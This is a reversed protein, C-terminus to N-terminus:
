IYSLHDSDCVGYPWCFAVICKIFTYMVVDIAEEKCKEDNKYWLENSRNEKREYQKVNEDNEVKM